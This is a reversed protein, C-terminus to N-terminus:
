FYSGPKGLGHLDARAPHIGGGWWGLAPPVIEWTRQLSSLGWPGPSLGVLVLTHSIQSGTTYLYLLQHIKARNVKSSFIELRWLRIEPATVPEACSKGQTLASSGGWVARQSITVRPPSSVHMPIQEDAKPRYVRNLHHKSAKNWLKCM